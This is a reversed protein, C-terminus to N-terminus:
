ILSPFFYPVKKELRPSTQFNEPSKWHKRCVCQQRCQFYINFSNVLLTPSTAWEADWGKIRYGGLGGPHRYKCQILAVLKDLIRHKQSAPRKNKAYGGWTDLARDLIQRSANQQLGPKWQKRPSLPIPWPHTKCGSRRLAFTKSFGHPIVNKTGSRRREWWPALILELLAGEDAFM